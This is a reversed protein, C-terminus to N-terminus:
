FCWLNNIQPCTPKCARHERTKPKHLSPITFCSISKAMHHLSTKKATADYIFQLPCPCYISEKLLLWYMSRHQQLKIFIRNTIQADVLTCSKINTESTFLNELIKITTKAVHEDQCRTVSGLLKVEKM